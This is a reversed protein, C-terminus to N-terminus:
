QKPALEKVLAAVQRLRLHAVDYRTVLEKWESEPQQHGNVPTATAPLNQEIMELNLQARRCADNLAEPLAVRIAAADSLFKEACRLWAAANQEFGVQYSELGLQGFIEPTKQEYGLGMAPSGGLMALICAHLRMGIFADCSGLAQILERPRLRTRNIECRAQMVAPLREIIQLALESDDVYGAVGQCTSVFLLKRQPDNLLFRCLDEAKAVTQKVAVTEGLPWVRFCLGVKRIPGDRPQFLEPALDHWLFAADATQRIKEAHVGAELLHQKSVLDRTCICSVRNLVQPIRRLSQPKWFPGISQGLVILPKGLALAVEFGRLRDEIPYFDHLFGGPASLVIDARRYSESAHRLLANQAFELDSGLQLDPCYHRTLELDKCLTTITSQPWRKRLSEIVARLLAEDGGNLPVANSILINM